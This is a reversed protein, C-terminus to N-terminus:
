GKGNTRRQRAAARTETWGAGFLYGASAIVLAWIETDIGCARLYIGGIIILIAGVKPLWSDM